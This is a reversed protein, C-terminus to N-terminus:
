PKPGFMAELQKEDPMGVVQQLENDANLYYIAPTANAGLNDM